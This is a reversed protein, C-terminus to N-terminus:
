SEFVSYLQMGIISMKLHALKSFSCDTRTTGSTGCVAANHLM